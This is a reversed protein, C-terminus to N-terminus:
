LSSARLSALLQSGLGRHRGEYWDQAEALEARAAPTFGEAPDDGDSLRVDPLSIAEDILKPLM